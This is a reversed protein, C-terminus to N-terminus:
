RGGGEHYVWRDASRVILLTLVLIILFLIWALASAYGMNFFQFAQRFLYLVYFLTSDLPGGDTAVFASTFTQFTSIISLVLTFFITPTLMPLTIRWFSQWTGAGDITAAEYLHHPIGQLGALYIVMTRGLGWLSMMLLAPLAWHPDALWRPGQIGVYSLLTNVLGVDPNLIWMWLVIFAVGPLVSPLYYITRFAGRFRLKQNMLLALILGGILELPVYFATYITTVKLSQWFLPDRTFMKEYNQLGVFKAPSLLDWRTFSIFLSAIMPGLVFLLLGLLWPSILLYFTLAERRALSLGNWRQAIRLRTSAAM